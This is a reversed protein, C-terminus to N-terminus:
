SMLARATSYAGPSEREPVDFIHSPGTGADDAEWGPTGDIAFKVLAGHVSDALAQPPDDGAVGAVGPADLRDFVFPIDICHGSYPPDESRWTFRYSWTPGADAEARAAAVRPIWIHFVSDSAYRELLEITSEQGIAMPTDLWRDAAVASAGLARLTLRRPVHELVLNSGFMGVLEGETSGLVLPVKANPGHSVSEVTTTPVITGDAVPGIMLGDRLLQSVERLMHPPAPQTIRPQMELLKAESLKSFGTVNNDVGTLKALYASRERAAEVSPDAVASSMAYGASFLGAAGPTGLLTLVAGGGASQGAITVKDPDGGFADIHGNVWELACIWDLVGRNPVAGEIWGFGRFGLRYSITVLVVGDRAFARGDYWPSAPSGSIFGGGHIWVIVPLKAEPDLSPTWVNVNLIDSGPVSLEPIIPEGTKAHMPTPGFETADFVGDWPERHVPRAFRLPGTPEEAYPIGRFMATSGQWIGQVKGSRTTVIPGEAGDM